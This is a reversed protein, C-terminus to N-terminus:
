QILETSYTSTYIFSRGRHRMSDIRRGSSGKATKSNALAVFAQVGNINIYEQIEEPSFFVNLYRLDARIDYENRPDKVDSWIMHKNM